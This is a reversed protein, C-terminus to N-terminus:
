SAIGFVRSALMYKADREDVAQEPQNTSFSYLNRTITGRVVILPIGLYRLNLYDSKPEIYTEFFIQPHNSRM